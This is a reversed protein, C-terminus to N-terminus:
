KEKQTQIYKKIQEETNESVTAVFYSPNWLHGGWLKNKIEPYKLFLKRAFIGKFKRLINPIFHQPRCEILLHIHDKDREMEVIKIELEESINRLIEKLDKEIDAVLIEHRYKICWVMHYQISYVYGRGFNINAM